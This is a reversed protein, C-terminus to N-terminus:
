WLFIKLFSLVDACYEIVNVLEAAVGRPQQAGRQGVGEEPLVAGDEVHADHVGDALRDECEPCHAVTVLADLVEGVHSSACYDTTISYVLFKWFSKLHIM